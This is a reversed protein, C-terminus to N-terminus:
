SMGASFRHMTTCYRYYLVLLGTYSSPRLNNETSKSIQAGIKLFFVITKSLIIQHALGLGIQMFAGNMTVRKDLMENRCHDRRWDGALPAEAVLCKSHIDVSIGGFLHGVSLASLRNTVINM